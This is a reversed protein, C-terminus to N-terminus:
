EMSLMQIFEQPSAVPIDAHPYDRQNRTIIYEAECRMAAYYQVSDEFDRSRQQLAWDIALPGTPAINIISRLEWMVEYLQEDTRNKKAYFSVTVMTVDSAWLECDGDLGLQLIKSSAEVFGVRNQVVDILVNADLFIKTAM